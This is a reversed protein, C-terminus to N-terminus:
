VRSNGNLSREINRLMAVSCTSKVEAGPELFLEAYEALSANVFEDLEEKLEM